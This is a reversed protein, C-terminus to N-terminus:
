TKPRQWTVVIAICAFVGLFAVLVLQPIYYPAMEM